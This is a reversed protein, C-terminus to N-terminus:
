ETSQNINILYQEMEEINILIDVPLYDDINNYKNTRTEFYIQMLELLTLDKIVSKLTEFDKQMKKIEKSM